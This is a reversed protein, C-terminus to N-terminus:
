RWMVADWTSFLVQTGTKEPNRFAHIVICVSCYVLVALLAYGLWRRMANM